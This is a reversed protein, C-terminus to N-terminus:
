SIIQIDNLLGKESIFADLMEQDRFIDFHSASSGYVEEIKEQDFKFKYNRLHQLLGKAGNHALIYSRIEECVAAQVERILKEKEIKKM